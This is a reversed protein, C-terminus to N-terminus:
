EIALLTNPTSKTLKLFSKLTKYASDTTVIGTSNASVGFYIVDDYGSTDIKKTTVTWYPVFLSTHVDAASVSKLMPTPTITPTAVAVKEAFIRDTSQRLKVLGAAIVIILIVFFVFLVQKM